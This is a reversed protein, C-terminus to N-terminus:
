TIVCGIQHVEDKLYKFTYMHGDGPDVVLSGVEKLHPMLNPISKKDLYDVLIEALRFREEYSRRM